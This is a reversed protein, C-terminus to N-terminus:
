KSLSGRLYLKYVNVAMINVRLRSQAAAFAIGLLSATQVQVDPLLPRRDATNVQSGAGDWNKSRSSVAAHTLQLISHRSSKSTHQCAGSNGPVLLCASWCSKQQFRQLKVVPPDASHSGSGATICYSCAVSGGCCEYCPHNRQRWGANLASLTDLQAGRFM